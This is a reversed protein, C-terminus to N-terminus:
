IACTMCELMSTRWVRRVNRERSIQGLLFLMM